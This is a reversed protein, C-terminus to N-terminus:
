KFDALDQQADKGLDEAPDSRLYFGSNIDTITEPHTHSVIHTIYYPSTFLGVAGHDQKYRRFMSFDKIGHQKLPTRFAQVDHQHQFIGHDKPM